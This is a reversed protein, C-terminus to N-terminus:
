YKIHFTDFQHNNHIVADIFNFLTIFNGKHLLFKQKETDCNSKNDICLITLKAICLVSM